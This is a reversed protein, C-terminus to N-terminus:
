GLFQLLGDRWPLVQVNGLRRPVPDRSLCYGHELGLDAVLRSLPAVMEPTVQASSKIELALLSAGPREVVLDIEVGDRTRLYAFRFDRPRYAHLRRAELIVAHEFADGYLTTQPLLPLTLTRQLARAVGTDFFYFKPKLSLRKRFSHHFPELLFGVLTDELVHFYAQVTKCDVGVDRAIANMNIIKGNSQAAVELFRRFPDLQRILQEGWVEEKVYTLAYARLFALREEETTLACLGPLTGWRLADDLVFATGLEQFTLPHLECVAARGALLNAGGAKLKRASSGTLAFRVRGREIERHVVDLLRPVKQVEDVVVWGAEPLGADLLESLTDPRRAFRDEEAPSLLDLWLARAFRPDHRLLTSKGTGRPGFLFFSQKLPLRVTRQVM